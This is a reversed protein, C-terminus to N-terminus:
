RRGLLETVAATLTLPESCEHATCCNTMFPGTEVAFTPEQESHHHSWGAAHLVDAARQLPGTCTEREFFCGNKYVASVTVRSRERPIKLPYRM